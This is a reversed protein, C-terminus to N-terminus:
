KLLDELVSVRDKLLKNRDYLRVYEEIFLRVDALDLYKHELYERARTILDDRSM